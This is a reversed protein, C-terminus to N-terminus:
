EKTCNVKLGFSYNHKLQALAEVEPYITAEVLLHCLYVALIMVCIAVQVKEVISALAGHILAV